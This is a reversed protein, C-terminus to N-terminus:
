QTRRSAYIQAAKTATDAKKVEPMGADLVLKFDGDAFCSITDFYTNHTYSIFVTGSEDTFLTPNLELTLSAVEKANELAISSPIVLKGNLTVGKALTAYQQELEEILM